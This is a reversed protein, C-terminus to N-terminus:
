EVEFAVVINVRVIPDVVCQPAPKGDCGPLTMDAGADLLELVTGLSCELKPQPVTHTHVPPPSPTHAIENLGDQCKVFSIM